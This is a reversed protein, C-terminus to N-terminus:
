WHVPALNITIAQWVMGAGQGNVQGPTTDGSYTYLPHGNFEVQNGNATKQVTLNGKIPTTSFVTGNSLLPPWTQACQHTCTSAPAPDSTRQYLTMGDFTTLVTVTQGNITVQETKLVTKSTGSTTAPKQDSSSQDNQNNQSSGQATKDQNSQTTGQGQKNQTTMQGQNNNQQNSTTQNNNQQNTQTTNAAQQNNNNQTVAPMDTRTTVTASASPTTANASYPITNIGTNSSGCAVVFITLFAGLALLLSRRISVM